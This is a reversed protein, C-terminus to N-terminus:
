SQESRMEKLINVVEALVNSLKSKYLSDQNPDELIKNLNQCSREFAWLAKDELGISKFNKGLYYFALPYNYTRKVLRMLTNISLDIRGSLFYAKGLLFKADANEPDDHDLIDFIINISATYKQELLLKKARNLKDIIIMCEEKEEENHPEDPPLVDNLQSKKSYDDLIESSYQTNCVPCSESSLLWMKLCPEIHLYHENSCAVYNVDKKNGSSDMLIKTHCVICGIESNM